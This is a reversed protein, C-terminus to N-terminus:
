PASIRKFKLTVHDPSFHLTIIQIPKYTNNSTLRSFLCFLFVQFYHSFLYCSEPEPMWKINVKCGDSIDLLTLDFCNNMSCSQLKSFSDVTPPYPPPPPPLETKSGSKSTTCTSPGRAIWTGVPESSRFWERLHFGLMKPVSNFSPGVQFLASGTTGAVQQEIEAELTGSLM